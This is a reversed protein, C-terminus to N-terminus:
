HHRDVVQPLRFACLRTPTTEVTTGRGHLWVEVSGRTWTDFMKCVCMRPMQCVQSIRDGLFYKEAALAHWSTARSTFKEREGEREQTSESEFRSSAAAVVDYRHELWVFTRRKTLVVEGARARIHKCAVWVDHIPSSPWFVFVQSLEIQFIWATIDAFSSVIIKDPPRSTCPASGDSHEPDDSGSHCIEWYAEL